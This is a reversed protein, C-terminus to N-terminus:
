LIISNDNTIEDDELIWWGKDHLHPIKNKSCYRELAERGDFSNHTVIIIGNEIIVDPKCACTTSKIHAEIDCAPINNIM